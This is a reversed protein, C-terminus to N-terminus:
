FNEKKVIIIVFNDHVFKFVARMGWTGDPWCFQILLKQRDKPHLWGDSQLRHMLNYLLGWRGTMGARSILGPILQFMNQASTQTCQLQYRCDSCHSHHEKYYLPLTLKSYEEIVRRHVLVILVSYHLTCLRFHEQVPRAENEPRGVIWLKVAHLFTLALQFHDLVPYYASKAILGGQTQIHQM